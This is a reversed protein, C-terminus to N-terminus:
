CFREKALPVNKAEGRLAKLPELGHAKRAEDCRSNSGKGEEYSAFFERCPSPRNEYIACSVSSGVKGKLASCKPRNQETGKMTRFCDGHEVFLEAPVPRSYDSAEGERWYFSVRFHACCAGCTTCPNM